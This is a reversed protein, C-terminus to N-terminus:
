QLTRREAIHARIALTVILVWGGAGGWRSGASIPAALFGAIRLAGVCVIVTTMSRLRAPSPAVAHVVAIAAACWALIAWARHEPWSPSVGLWSGVGSSTFAAAVVLLYIRSM